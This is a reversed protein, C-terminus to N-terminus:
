LKNFSLVFDSELNSKITDIPNDSSGNVIKINAGVPDATIGLIFPYYFELSLIYDIM